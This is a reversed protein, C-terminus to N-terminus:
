FARLASTIMVVGGTIVAADLIAAHIHVPMREVFAKALFAGPIAVLGILLALALVQATIVGTLGFVSIKVAASTLSIVADTAVVAAGELGAAMLLSLLIVGSGATGGVVVGYGVAGAALGREGIRVSHKRLLRRLPVSLILMSGIVLAAGASTLRTYGYAGLATSFLAAAIVIIAKRRDAFRVFAIFRSSNTFISSIAIIPVVPEAGVMPVLVLPMLAGTGYGALGGIVSAFLAVAAVLLIQLLSIDAFGSLFNM